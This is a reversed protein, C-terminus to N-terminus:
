SHAGGAPDSRRPASPPAFTMQEGKPRVPSPGVTSDRFRNGQSLAGAHLLQAIALAGHEKIGSVVPKWANAQAEDTMGPQHVYGQSFAQDTYIGETIVTGFGGRAFREYYRTMTETARGDQTASIRTM